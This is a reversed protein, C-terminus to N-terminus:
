KIQLLAKSVEEVPSDCTKNYCVYIMTMGNVEKLELLPLESAKESGM